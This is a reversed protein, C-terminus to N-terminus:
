DEAARTWMGRANDFDGNGVTREPRLWKVHGDAFLYNWGEMHLPQPNGSANQQGQWWPSAWDPTKPSRVEAGDAHGFLNYANPCETVM